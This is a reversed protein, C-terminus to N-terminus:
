LTKIIVELQEAIQSAMIRMSSVRTNDASFSLYHDRLKILRSKVSGGNETNINGNKLHIAVEQHLSNKKYIQSNIDTIQNDIDFMEAKIEDQKRCISKYEKAPLNGPANRVRSKYQSLQLEIQKKRTSLRSKTTMLDAISKEIDILTMENIQAM